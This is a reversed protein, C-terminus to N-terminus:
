SAKEWTVRSQENLIDAWNFYYTGIQNKNSFHFGAFEVDLPRTKVVLLYFPDIGDIKRAWLSGVTFDSKDMVEKITVSGYISRLLSVLCLGFFNL